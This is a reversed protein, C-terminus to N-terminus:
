RRREVVATLSDALRHAIPAAAYAHRVQERTADDLRPREAAVTLLRAAWADADDEDIVWGLGLNEVVWPIEGSASGVVPVGALAAEVIVRGFQEVWADTTRSPVVLVDLRAYFDAMEHHAWTRQEIDVPHSTSVIASLLASEPGQGAVQLRVPVQEAVRRVVDALFAIGKQPVLRGAYGITFPEDPDRAPTARTAREVLADPLAHPVFAIEADTGWRRTLAAASESRAMVLAAPRLATAMLPRWWRPVRHDLNEANQLAYPLHHRRALFAWQLGALSFAEEEIVVVDPRVQRLLRVAARTRYVHRQIAGAGRVPLRHLRGGWFRHDPASAAYESPWNAPVALHVDHGVGGLLRYVDRNPEITCAHSVVLVRM